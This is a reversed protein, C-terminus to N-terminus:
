EVELTVAFVPIVAGEPVYGTHAITIHAQGSVVAEFRYVQRTGAPNPAGASSEGMFLVSGSSV